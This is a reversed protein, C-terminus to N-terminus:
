HDAASDAGPRLREVAFGRERAQQLLTGVRMAGPQKERSLLLLRDRRPSGVLAQRGDAGVHLVWHDTWAWPLARLWAPWLSLRLRAGASGAVLRAEGRQREAGAGDTLVVDFHGDARPLYHLQGAGRGPRPWRALVFWSGAFRTWDVAAATAPPGRRRGRLLWDALPLGLGTLIGATAPSLRARWAAPLMPWALAALHAWPMGGAPPSGAPDGAAAVAPAPRARRRRWAWLGLAAVALAMGAAGTALRGPEFSHKVRAHLRRVGDDLAQERAVLRAEVERIRQDLRTEPAPAM